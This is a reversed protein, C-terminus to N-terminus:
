PLCVGQQRLAALMQAAVHRHGDPNLHPDDSSLWFKHKLPYHFDPHLMGYEQHRTVFDQALRPELGQYDAFDVIPVQMKHANAGLTELARRYGDVGVMHQYGEPVQWLEGDDMSTPWEREAVSWAVGRHEPRLRERLVELLYSGAFRLPDRRELMLHPLGFDNQIFLVLVCDPELEPGYRRLLAAEQATNYGPVGANVVEVTRASSRGLDRELIAGFTEDYEVGWGFAQSDGLLLLRLVGSGKPRAFDRPARLGRGNTRVRTGHFCTDLDPKLEYVIESDVSPRVIEGLRAQHSHGCDELVPPPVATTTKRLERVPDRGTVAAWLRTGLEAILLGLALGFLISILRFTWERSTTL